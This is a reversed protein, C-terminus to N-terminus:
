NEDALVSVNYESKQNIEKLEDIYKQIECNKNAQKYIEEYSFIKDLKLSMMQWDEKNNLDKGEKKM